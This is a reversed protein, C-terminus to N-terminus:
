EPPVANHGDQPRQLSGIRPLKEGDFALRRDEAPMGFAIDHEFGGGDAALMRPNDVDVAAVKDLIEGAAVAGIEVAPQDDIALRQGFVVLDLDAVQHEHEVLARRGDARSAALGRGASAAAIIISSSSGDLPEAMM